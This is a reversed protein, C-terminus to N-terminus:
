VTGRGNPETLMASGFELQPEKVNLRTLMHQRGFYSCPFSPGRFNATFGLATEWRILGLSDLRIFDIYRLRVAPVEGVEYADPIIPMLGSPTDWVMSCFRAAAPTPASPM